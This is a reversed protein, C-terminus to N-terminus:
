KNSSIGIEKLSIIKYYNNKEKMLLGHSYWERWWRSIVDKNVGTLKQLERASHKGDTLEYIQKKKQDNLVESAIERFLKIGQLRQWKLIEKLIQKIEDNNNM